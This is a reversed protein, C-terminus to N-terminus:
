HNLWNQGKLDADKAVRDESLSTQAVLRLTGLISAQVFFLRWARTAAAIVYTLSCLPSELMQSGSLLQKHLVSSLLVTIVGSQEASQCVHFHTQGSFLNLSRNITLLLVWDLRVVFWHLLGTCDIGLWKGSAEM